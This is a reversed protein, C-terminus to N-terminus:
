PSLPLLSLPLYVPSFFSPSLLIYVPPHSPSSCCESTLRHLMVCQYFHSAAGLVVSLLLFIVGFIWVCEACCGGDACVVEALYEDLAVAVVLWTNVGVGVLYWSIARAQRISSSVIHLKNPKDLKFDVLRSALLLSLAMVCLGVCLVAMLSTWYVDLGPVLQDCVASTLQTHLLYLSHCSGTECQLSHSTRSRYDSHNQNVALAAFTVALLSLSPPLPPPPPLSPSLIM